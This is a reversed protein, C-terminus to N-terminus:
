TWPTVFHKVSAQFHSVNRTVLALNHVETTAAILADALEMTRGSAECTAMLKGCTEAVEADVPLLRGEFRPRLENRFWDDLARRRRGPPLREIGRRLEAITVVSLFIKDEDTQDLWRLVGANPRPKPIESVVNTDLLYNM